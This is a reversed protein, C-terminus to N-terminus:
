FAVRYQASVVSRTYDNAADTSDQESRSLVFGLTEAPSRLHTYTLILDTLDNTETEKSEQALCHGSLLRGRSSINLEQYEHM